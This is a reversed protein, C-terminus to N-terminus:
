FPIEDTDLPTKTSRPAPDESEHAGPEDDPLRIRIGDVLKGQYEVRKHYLKVHLGVWDDTDASGSIEELYACNTKNLPLVKDTGKFSLVIKDDSGIKKLEAAAITLKVDGKGKLDSGKLFDGTSTYVDNYNVM